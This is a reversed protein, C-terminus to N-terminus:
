DANSEQSAKYAAIVEPTWVAEAKEKVKADEKSIDDGPVVVHRHFKRKVEVGDKLVINARRVQIQGLELVEMKDIETKETLAM